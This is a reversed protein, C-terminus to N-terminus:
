ASPECGGEDERKEGRWKRRTRLLRPLHGSDSNEV